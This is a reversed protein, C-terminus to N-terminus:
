KLRECAKKLLKIKLLLVRQTVHAEPATELKSGIGSRKKKKGFGDTEGQLLGMLFRSLTMSFIPQSCFHALVPTFATMSGWAAASLLLVKEGGVRLFVDYVALIYISSSIVGLFLWMIIRNDRGCIKDFFLLAMHFRM